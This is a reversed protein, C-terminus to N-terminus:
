AESSSLCVPSASSGFFNATYIELFVYLYPVLFSFSLFNCENTMQLVRVCHVTSFNNVYADTGASRIVNDCSPMLFKFIRVKSFWLIIKRTSNRERALNYLEAQENVHFKIGFIIDIFIVHFPSLKM